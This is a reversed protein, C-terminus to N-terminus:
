IILKRERLCQKVKMSVSGLVFRKEMIPFRMCGSDVTLDLKVMALTRDVYWVKYDSIRPTSFLFLFLCVSGGGGFCMWVGQIRRCNDTVLMLYAKNALFNTPHLFVSSTRHCHGNAVVKVEQETEANIHNSDTANMIAKTFFGDNGPADGNDEQGSNGVDLRQRTYPDLDAPFYAEQRHLHLRTDTRHWIFTFSYGLSVYLPMHFFMMANPKALRQTQPPLQDAQRAWTSGLDKAGDPTFPRKIM